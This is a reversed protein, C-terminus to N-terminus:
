KEEYIEVREFTEDYWSQSKGDKAEVTIKDDPEKDDIDIFLKKYKSCELVIEDDDIEWDIKVNDTNAGGNLYGEGDECLVLVSGDKGLYVGSWEKEPSTKKGCAALSMVAMLSCMAVVVKKKM